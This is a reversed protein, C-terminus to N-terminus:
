CFSHLNKACGIHLKRCICIHSLTLNLIKQLVQLRNRKFVLATKRRRAPEYIHEVWNECTCLHYWWVLEHKEIYYQFQPHYSCTEGNLAHIFVNSHTFFKNNATCNAHNPPPSTQYKSEIFCIMSYRRHFKAKRAM